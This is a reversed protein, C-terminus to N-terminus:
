QLQEKIANNFDDLDDPTRSTVINRDVVVEEDKVNAGANRLDNRVSIFSTLTVGKLLDTDILFQPAHCIAFVPKQNAIFSHAFEAHKPDIRLLDPSFGGPVLLADYQEAKVEDIGKDITFTDGNKGTLEKGSEVNLLDVSHGAEKFKEVPDTLEIEEVMDTVLVAIKKSM